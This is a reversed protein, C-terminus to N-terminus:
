GIYFYVIKVLGDGGKGGNGASTDGGGGGGGGSGYIGDSGNKGAGDGNGYNDGDGGNGGVGFFSAGGGGGGAGYGYYAGASGGSYTPSNDGSTNKGGGMRYGSTVLGTNAESGAGGYGGNATITISSKRLFNILDPPNGLTDSDNIISLVEFSGSVSSSEGDGGNAGSSGGTGGSGGTGVTINLTDGKDLRIVYAKYYGSGGGAGSLRSTDGGGGGGGAGQVWLYAFIIDVPAEWTYSGPTTWEVVSKKLHSPIYYDSM